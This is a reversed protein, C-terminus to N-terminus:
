KLLGARTFVGRPYKKPNLRLGRWYYRGVLGGEADKLESGVQLWTAPDFYFVAQTIGDDEPTAYRRSVKWCTQGALGPVAVLGDYRVWLTGADRAKKWYGLTRVTGIQIGFETAPYRSSAKADDGNPDREVVGALGLLGAPRVLLNGANEGRVYLTRAALRVGRRWDMRVSFPRERFWCEVQEEPLVKGAIREEKVLLVHYGTVEKEYRTICRELFAVPDAEILREM